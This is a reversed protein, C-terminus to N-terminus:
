AYLYKINLNFIKCGEGTSLYLGNLLRVIERSRITLPRISNCLCWPVSSFREYPVDGNNMSQGLWVDISGWYRCTFDGFESCVSLSQLISFQRDGICESRNRNLRHPLDVLWTKIKDVANTTSYSFYNTVNAFCSVQTLSYRNRQLSM